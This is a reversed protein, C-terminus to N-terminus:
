EDKDGKELLLDTMEKDEHYGCGICTYVNADGEPRKWVEITHATTKDCEGCYFANEDKAAGILIKLMAELLALQVEDKTRKILESVREICNCTPSSPAPVDGGAGKDETSGPASQGRSAQRGAFPTGPLLNSKDWEHLCKKCTYHDFKGFGSVTLEHDEGCRPCALTNIPVFWYRDCGSCYWAISTRCATKGRSSGEGNCQPCNM